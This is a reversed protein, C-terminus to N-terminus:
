EPKRLTRLALLHISVGIAVIILIIRLILSETLFMASFGITIWLLGLTIFKVRLAAAKKERYNKIYSGFWRNNLLWHYLRKSSKAYCAAALLMFPTTPLVPIFVGLIGLGAFFTGGAILLMRALKQKM